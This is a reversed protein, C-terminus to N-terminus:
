RGPKVAAAFVSSGFPLDVSRLVRRDVGCLGTLVRDVTPSVPTLRPGEATGRREKLRRMARELVFFPFVSAFGYTARELTLGAEEIAAVLRPRTYRRYHGAHVDHDSWAWQYAPVSVLLRGGPALVRALEAVAESESPCHEIVDFAAVVDFTGDGFPLATASACVGTAARLGQPNLDAAVRRPVVDMWQVSPGDASGVDVLLRPDGLYRGLAVELLDARARHWWYNPQELSSSGRQAVTVM